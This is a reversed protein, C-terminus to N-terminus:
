EAPEMERAAAKKHYAILDITAFVMVVPAKL